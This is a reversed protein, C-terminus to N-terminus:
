TAMLLFLFLMFNATRITINWGLQLWFHHGLKMETEQNGLVPTDVKAKSSHFNLFMLDYSEPHHHDDDDLCSHFHM